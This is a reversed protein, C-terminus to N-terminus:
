YQSSPEIRELIGQYIGQALLKQFEPSRLQREEWPNSIFGVEVLLAPMNAGRLVYFPATKVGRDQMQCTSVLSEQVSHSLKKSQERYQNQILDWLITRVTSPVADARLSANERLAVNEAGEGQTYQSNYFTEVGTARSDWAANAHISIFLDAQLRNALETRADLGVFEDDDRTLLVQIDERQNLLAFLARAVALTVDKEKLGSAGIAGPDKGGHGPDLVVRYSNKENSTHKWAGIPPSSPLPEAYAPEINLLAPILDNQPPRIQVVIAEAKQNTFVAFSCDTTALQVAARLVNESEQRLAVKNVLGDGVAIERYPLFARLPYLNMVIQPPNTLEGAVYGTNAPLNMSIQTGNPRSQIQVDDFFHTDQAVCQHALVLFMFSTLLLLFRSLTRLSTPPGPVVFRMLTTKCSSTSAARM